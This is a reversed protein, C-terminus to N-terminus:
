STHKITGDRCSSWDFVSNCATFETTLKLTAYSRCCATFSVIRSNQGSRTSCPSQCGSEVLGKFVENLYRKLTKSRLRSLVKPAVPIKPDQESDYNTIQSEGAVIQVFIISGKNETLWASAEKIGANIEEM